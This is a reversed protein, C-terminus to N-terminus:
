VYWDLAHCAITTAASVAFAVIAQAWGRGPDAPASGTRHELVPVLVAAVLVGVVGWARAPWVTGPLLWAGPLLILLCAEGWGILVARHPCLAFYRLLRTTINMALHCAVAVTLPYLAGPLHWSRTVFLWFLGVILNSAVIQTEIPPEARERDTLPPVLSYAFFLTAPAVIWRWGGLTVFLYGALVSTVVGLRTVSTTGKKLWYRAVIALAILLGAQLILTSAPLALHTSLFAYTALPILLNDSGYLSVAEILAVLAGILLSVLLTEARGAETFLLLPVLTSMFAVSFFSFTGELTKTDEHAVALSGTAYRLGVLAGVADALALVLVPITYFVSQGNTLWYVTGLSIIFFIEGFSTRTV